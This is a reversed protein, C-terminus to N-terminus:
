LHLIQKLRNAIVKAVIRYVVNSLSIPRFETVKMPKATKPILAIYTHNLPAITGQQNLVHLCTALVGDKVSEWHKQFFVAQLGDPGPAKTPCMQFLSTTVEEATFPQELLDNMESNVKPTM